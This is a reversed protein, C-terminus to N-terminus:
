VSRSVSVSSRLNNVITKKMNNIITITKKKMNDIITLVHVISTKLFKNINKLKSQCLYNCYESRCSTEFFEASKSWCELGGVLECSAKPQLRPEM